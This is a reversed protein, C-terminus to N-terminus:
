LLDKCDRHILHFVHVPLGHVNAFNIRGRGDGIQTQCGGDEDPTTILIVPEFKTDPPIDFQGDRFSKLDDADDTELWSDVDDPIASIPMMGLDQLIFDSLKWSGVGYVDAHQIADLLDRKSPQISESIMETIGQIKAYFERFSGFFEKPTPPVYGQPLYVYEQGGGSSGDVAIVDKRPVSTSIIKHGGHTYFGAEHATGAAFDGPRVTAGKPAARYLTIPEDGQLRKPNRGRLDSLNTSGVQANRQVRAFVADAVDDAFREGPKVSGTKAVVKRKAAEYSLGRIEKALPVLVAPIETSSETMGSSEQALANFAARMAPDLPDYELVFSSCGSIHNFLDILKM